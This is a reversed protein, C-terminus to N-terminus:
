DHQPSVLKGLLDFGDTVHGHASKYSSTVQDLNSGSCDLGEQAQAEKILSNLADHMEGLALGLDQSAHRVAQKEVESPYDKARGTLGAAWKALESNDDVDKIQDRENSIQSELAKVFGAKENCDGSKKIISCVSLYTHDQTADSSIFTIIDIFDNENSRLEAETIRNKGLITCPATPTVRFCTASSLAPRWLALAVFTVVLEAMLLWQRGRVGRVWRADLMAGSDQWRRRLQTCTKRNVTRILVRDPLEHSSFASRTDSAVSRPM